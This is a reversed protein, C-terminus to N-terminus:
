MEMNEAPLVNLTQKSSEGGAVSSSGRPVPLTRCLPGKRELKVTEGIVNEIPYSAKLQEIEIKTM